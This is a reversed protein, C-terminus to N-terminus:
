ESSSLSFLHMVKCEPQKDRVGRREEQEERERKSQQHSRCEETQTGAENSSWNGHGTM